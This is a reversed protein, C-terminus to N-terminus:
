QQDQNREANTKPMQGPPAPVVGEESNALQGFSAPTMQLEPGQVIPNRRHFPIKWLVLIGLVCVIGAGIHVPRIWAPWLVRLLFRWM